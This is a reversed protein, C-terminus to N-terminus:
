VLGSARSATASLRSWSSIPMWNISGASHWDSIHGSRIPESSVQTRLVRKEATNDVRANCQFPITMTLKKHVLVQNAFESQPKSSWRQILRDQSASETSAWRSIVKGQKWSCPLSLLWHSTLIAKCLTFAAPTKGKFPFSFVAFIPVAAQWFLLQLPFFM